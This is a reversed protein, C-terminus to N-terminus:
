RRNPRAKSYSSETKVGAGEYQTAKPPGRDKSGKGKGGIVFLGLDM